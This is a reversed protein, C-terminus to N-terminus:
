ALNLPFPQFLRAEEQLVSLFPEFLFSLPPLPEVQALQGPSPPGALKSSLPFFAYCEEDIRSRLELTIDYYKGFIQLMNSLQVRGIRTILHAITEIFKLM